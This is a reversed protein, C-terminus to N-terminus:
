ENNWAWLICIGVLMGIGYTAVNEYGYTRSMVGVTLSVVLCLPDVAKVLIKKIKPNMYIDKKINPSIYCLRVM